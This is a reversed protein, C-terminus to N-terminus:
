ADILLELIRDAAIEPAKLSSAAIKASVVPTMPSLLEARRGSGFRRLEVDVVKMVIEFSGSDPDWEVIAGHPCPRCALVGRPRGAGGLAEYLQPLAEAVTPFVAWAIVATEYVVEGPAIAIERLDFSDPLELLAYWRGASPNIRWMARGGAARVVAEIAARRSVDPNGTDSITLYGVNCRANTTEVPFFEAHIDISPSVSGRSACSRRMVPRREM